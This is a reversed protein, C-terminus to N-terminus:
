FCTSLLIGKERSEMYPPTPPNQDHLKYLRYPLQMGGLMQIPINDLIEVPHNLSSDLLVWKGQTCRIASAHLQNTCLFGRCTHNDSLRRLKMLHDASDQSQPSQELFVLEKKLSKLLSQKLSDSFGNAPDYTYKWTEGYRQCQRSYHGIAMNYSLYAIGILNNIAHIQCSRSNQSQTEFYLQQNAGIKWARHSSAAHVVPSNNEKKRM